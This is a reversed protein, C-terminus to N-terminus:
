DILYQIYIEEFGVVKEVLEAFALEVGDKTKASAEIFLM